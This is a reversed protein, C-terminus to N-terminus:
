GIVGSNAALLVLWQWRGPTWYYVAVAAAVLLLFTGSTFAM